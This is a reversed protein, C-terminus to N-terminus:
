QSEWRKMFAVVDEKSYRLGLRRVWKFFNFARFEFKQDEESLGSLFYANKDKFDEFDRETMLTFERRFHVRYCYEFLSIQTKSM